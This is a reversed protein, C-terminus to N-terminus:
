HTAASPPINKQKNNEAIMTMKTRHLFIKELLSIFVMVCYFDPRDGRTLKAVFVSDYTSQCM